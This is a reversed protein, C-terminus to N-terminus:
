RTGHVFGKLAPVSTLVGAFLPIAIFIMAGPKMHVGFKGNLHFGELIPLGFLSQAFVQDVTADRADSSAAVFMFGFVALCIVTVATTFIISTAMWRPRSSKM